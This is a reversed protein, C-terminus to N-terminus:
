EVQPCLDIFNILAITAQWRVRHAGNNRSDMSYVIAELLVNFHQM